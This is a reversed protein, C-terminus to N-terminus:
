RAAPRRWGITSVKAWLGYGSFAASGGQIANVVVQSRRLRQVIDVQIVKIRLLALLHAHTLQRTLQSLRETLKSLIFDQHICQAGHRIFSEVARLPFFPIFVTDM